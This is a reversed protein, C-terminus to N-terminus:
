LGQIPLGLELVEEVGRWLYHQRGRRTGACPAKSWSVALLLDKCSVPLTQLHQLWSRNGSRLSWCFTTKESNIVFVVRAAEAIGEVTLNM